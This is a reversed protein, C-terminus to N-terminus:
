ERIGHDSRKPMSAMSADATRSFLIAGDGQKVLKVGDFPPEITYIRAGQDQTRLIEVLEAVTKAIM